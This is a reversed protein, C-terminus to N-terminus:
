GKYGLVVRDPRAALVALGYAFLVALSAAVLLRQGAPVGHAELARWALLTLLLGNGVRAGTGIAVQEERQTGARLLRVLMWAAGAVYGQLLLALGADPRLAVLLLVDGAALAGGSVACTAAKGFRLLLTPKGFRADGERDRFDKLVIRALFLAFLATGLLLDGRGPRAGASALGLAYPVAVYAVALCLHALYTRHSLVLPRLSYVWAILLSLATLGAIAAGAPAAAALAVAVAAVHVRWLDAPTAERTVLPRGRDRPHNVLDIERDAVDNATTAAVYTAALAVAASALRASPRELGGHGAAGLLMFMWLMAAVRYRLMLLALQAHRM